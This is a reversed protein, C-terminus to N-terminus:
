GGRGGGTADLWRASEVEFGSAILKGILEIFHDQDWTGIVTTLEPSVRVAAAGGDVQSDIHGVGRLEWRHVGDTSM